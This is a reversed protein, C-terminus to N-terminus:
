AAARRVGEAVHRVQADTLGPSSPLYLGSEWLRDAVPCPTSRFGPVELLCPQLDMPCFFTRTDIGDGRLASSLQDRTMGFEPGVVVAYMWYVNTAWSLETPLQLGPVDALEANYRAALRRKADIVQDIRRLQSLGMAAQYGTM